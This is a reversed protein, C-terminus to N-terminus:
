RNHENWIKWLQVRFAKDEYRALNERLNDEIKSRLRQPSLVYVSKGFSLLMKRLEFNMRVTLTMIVGEKLIKVIKQTPHIPKTMTYPVQGKAVFLVITTPKSKLDVTVGIVEKFYSEPSFFNNEIYTNQRDPQIRVIRDLALLTIKYLVERFGVIYWRNNYEKLLYPHIVVISPHEKWFPHYTIKLVQKNLIAQYAEDLFELGKLQENKDMDIIPQRKKRAVEVKDELKKVMGEVDSFHSFGKFQKLIGVAESLKALDGESLPLTAISYNPDDYTYYKRDVVIIPAQYGLKDSRMNQIDFQITRKSIPKLMGEYEYLADTCAQMLDTLTWRRQRNCLCKDITRYRILANKNVPM